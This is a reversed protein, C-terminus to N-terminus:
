FLMRCKRSVSVPLVYNMGLAPREECEPDNQGPLVSAYIYDVTGFLPVQTHDNLFPFFILM